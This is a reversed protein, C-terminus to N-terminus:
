ASEGVLKIVVYTLDDCLQGACFEQQRRYIGEEIEAASLHALAAITEIVREKGLLEGAANRSEWLGDTGVLMVQGVRLGTHVREEYSESDMVGLPLGGEGEIETLAGTAPDYLLPQDHGASARRLSMSARDVVCLFMTMFRTGGTDAVLLRNSECRTLVLNATYRRGRHL